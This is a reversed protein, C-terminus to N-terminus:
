LFLCQNARQNRSDGSTGAGLQEVGRLRLEMFFEFETMNSNNLKSRALEGDEIIVVPKGELLDELKESHAMLWM